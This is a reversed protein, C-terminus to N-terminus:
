VLGRGGSVENIRRAFLFILIGVLGLIFLWGYQHVETTVEINTQQAQLSENIYGQIANRVEDDQIDAISDNSMELVMEGAAYLETTIKTGIPALFATMLTIMVAFVFFMIYFTLSGKKGKM